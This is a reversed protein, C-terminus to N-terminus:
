KKKFVSFKGLMMISRYYYPFMFLAGAYIGPLSEPFLSWLLAFTGTTLIYPVLVLLTQQERTLVERTNTIFNGSDGPVMFVPHVNFSKLLLFRTIENIILVGSIAAFCFTIFFIGSGISITQKYIEFLMMTMFFLVGSITFIHFIYVWASQRISKFKIKYAPNLTQLNTNKPITEVRM